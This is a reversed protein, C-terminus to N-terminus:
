AARPNLNAVGELRGLSFWVSRTPRHVTLARGRPQKTALALHFSFGLGHWFIDELSAALEVRGLLPADIIIQM